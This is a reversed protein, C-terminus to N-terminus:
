INGEFGDESPDKLKRPFGTTDFRQMVQYEQPSAVDGLLKGDPRAVVSDNIFAQLGGSKFALLCIQPARM